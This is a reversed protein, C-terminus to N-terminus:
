ESRLSKVPNMLAAKISHFSVTVLAIGIALLGALAFVWWELDIKYAFSQLWRNMAYWALPSAIAIALLVLKLFDKSLLGVISSVSAGLVKRVGIEKTRQEATFTALGFLGLCAILLALLASGNIIHLLANEAEYQQQIDADLFSFEFPIAPILKQWTAALRNMLEPLADTHIDAVVYNLQKPKATLVMLPRLPEKLSRYHFDKIVGIITYDERLNQYDLFIRSGVAKKLPITLKRLTTENVLVQRNTDVQTLYRGALLPIHLTTLFTEDIRNVWVGTGMKAKKGPPQYFMPMNEGVWRGPYNAASGIQTIALKTRLSTTFAFRQAQAEPTTFTFVIKQQQDFGLNRTKIFNLQQTIVIIAILLTISGVFQTIVLGKRLSISTYGNRLNGKLVNVAQYASLYFAPYFSSLLGTVLILIVLIVATPGIHTFMVPLEAQLLGNLIPLLLWVIPISLVAAMTVLLMSEGIFRGALSSRSAGMVKRVGVERARGTSRATNMNMFNICAMFQILGAILLMLRIFQPNANKELESDLQSHLHIDTVPQLHLSKKISVQALQEQGHHLLFAPLKAELQHPDAKPNLRIYTYVLNQGVWQNSTRLFEVMGGARFSMLFHARIHSKGYTENYVGTVRYLENNILLSQNIAPHSGFLKGATEASLVVTYPEDLAHQSSGELFQYTFLQFFSSDAYYGKTEYFAENGKKLLFREKGPDKFLRTVAMIEGFDDQLAKAIPPSSPALQFPDGGPEIVETSVRYLQKAGAHQQDYGYQNYVFLLMYLSCSTGITLGFLNIFTFAKNQWLNRFAIKLYNRIMTPDLSAFQPYPAPNGTRHHPKAFFPNLYHLVAWGYERRAQSIGVQAVRKYFIEQLDGQLDELLYPSVFGELLRDAWRPPETQERNTAM